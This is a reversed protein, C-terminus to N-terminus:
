CNCFRTSVFKEMGTSSLKEMGTSSLSGCSEHGVSKHLPWTTTYTAPMPGCGAVCVVGVGRVSGCVEGYRQGGRGSKQLAILRIGPRQSDGVGWGGEVNRWVEAWLRLERNAWGGEARPVLGQLTNIRLLGCM